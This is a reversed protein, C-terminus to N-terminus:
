FPVIGVRAMTNCEGCPSPNFETYAEHAPPLDDKAWLRAPETQEVEDVLLLCIKSLAFFQRIADLPVAQSHVAGVLLVLHGPQGPLNKMQRLVAPYDDGLLPKCEISVRDDSRQCQWTHTHITVEMQFYDRYTYLHLLDTAITSGFDQCLQQGYFYLENTKTSGVDRLSRHSCLLRGDHSSLSMVRLAALLTDLCDDRELFGLDQIVPHSFSGFTHNPGELRRREVHLDQLLQARKTALAARLRGDEVFTNLQARCQTRAAEYRESLSTASLTSTTEHSVDWSRVTWTVDVGAEEFTPASLTALYPTNAYYPGNPGQCVTEVLPSHFFAFARATVQLRFRDELCRIQLANHEPTESPEGFNNIVLTHLQPYRQIFWAQALLWDCYQRDEAIVEVPQGKYKGFPVVSNEAM